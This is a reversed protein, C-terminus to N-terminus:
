VNLYGCSESDILESINSRYREHKKWFILIKIYMRFISLLYPLFITIKWIIQNSNTITFTEKNNRSYEYNPTLTNVLIALIESRILILKKLSPIGWFWSLTPYFHKEASKLLKQSENVCESGFPKWFCDRHHM